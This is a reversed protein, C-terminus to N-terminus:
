AGNSTFVVNSPQVLGPPFLEQKEQYFHPFPTLPRCKFVQFNAPELTGSVELPGADLTVEPLLAEADVPAGEPEQVDVVVDDGLHRHRRRGSM